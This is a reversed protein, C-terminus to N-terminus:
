IVGACFGAGVVWASVSGIGAGVRSIICAGVLGSTKHEQTFCLISFQFIDLLCDFTYM